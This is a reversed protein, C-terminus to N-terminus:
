SMVKDCLVARIEDIHERIEAFVDYKLEWVEHELRSQFANLADILNDEPVYKRLVISDGDVYMGILDGGSLNLMRRMTVPSTLRGLDDMRNIKVINMIVGDM